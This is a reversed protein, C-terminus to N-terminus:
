RIQVKFVNESIAVIYFGSSLNEIVDDQTEAVKFGNVSYVRVISDRDKGYIHMKQGEVMIKIDIDSNVDDIGSWDVVIVKITKQVGSGDAASVTIVAEGDNIAKVLGDDVTAINDNSSSWILNPNTADQPIAYAEVKVSQGEELKLESSGIFIDSVPKVVTIECSASVDTGDQSKVTIVANGQSVTKVLGNSDVTAVSENSSTWTLTKVDATEPSVTATLQLSEGENLIASTIDLEITNVLEVVSVDCTAQIDSGDTSSATILANGRAVAKVLGTQDVTAVSENSSTWKLKKNDASEPSVVATLQLTQGGKLTASSVNLVIGSVLKLVKVECSVTINSGDTTKASITAQGQKIATVKGNSDVSAVASNSSTWELKKNPADSPNIVTTLQYSEGEKLNLSTQNLIVEKVLTGVTVTKSVRDAENYNENGEQNARIVVTGVKLFEVYKKGNQTYVEAISEDSVSYKVPLGSTSTATLEVVDGVSAKDFKQNWTIEQNAKTVTLTGREYNFTYNQAEAGSVIIPYTGVPSAKTATTEVNPQKTLVDATENNKFGFFSCTLKPNAVGYQRTINDPIVTLPAPTIEYSVNMETQSYWDKYKFKVPISISYTGVNIFEQPVSYEITTDDVHNQFSFSPISGNYTSTSNNFTILKYLYREPILNKYRDPDCVFIQSLSAPLYDTNFTTLNDSFLYIKSLNTNTNFKTNITTIGSGLYLTKLSSDFINDLVKVKDGIFAKEIGSDFCCGWGIEEVSNPFIIETLNKCGAFAYDGIKVVGEPIDINTIASYEVFEYPLCTVKEGIVVDTLTSQHTFPSKHQADNQINIDRGVYISELKAYCFTYSSSGGGISCYSPMTIPTDSDEIVVRKIGTCGYFTLEENTKFKTVSAPITISTIDKCLYFCKDGITTVTYTEGEYVITNPIVVDGTYGGFNYSANVITATHDSAYLDFYMGDIFTAAYANNSFLPLLMLLSLVLKLNKM